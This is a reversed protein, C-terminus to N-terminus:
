TKSNEQNTNIRQIQYKKQNYKNKKCERKKQNLLKILDKQRQRKLKTLQSKRKQSIRNKEIMKDKYRIMVAKKYTMM